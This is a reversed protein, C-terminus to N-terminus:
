GLLFDLSNMGVSEAKESISEDVQAFTGNVRVFRADKSMGVVREFPWRIVNPRMFGVGLEVVLFKKKFTAMLWANYFEWKKEGEEESFRDCYPAVVRKENFGCEFILEDSNESVVFYNKGDVMDLISKYAETIRGANNKDNAAFEEGVGVLIGQAESILNKLEEINM